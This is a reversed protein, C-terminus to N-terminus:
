ISRRSSVAGRAPSKATTARTGGGYTLDDETTATADTEDSSESASAFGDELRRVGAGLPDPKYHLFRPRPSTYNTKPNYLAARSPEADM